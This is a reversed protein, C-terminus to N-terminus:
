TSESKWTVRFPLSLQGTQVEWTRVGFPGLITSVAVSDEHASNGNSHLQVAPNKSKKPCSTFRRDVFWLVGVQLYRWHDNQFLSVVHKKKAM